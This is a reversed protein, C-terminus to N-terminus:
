VGCLGGGFFDRQALNGKENKNAGTREFVACGVLEQEEM